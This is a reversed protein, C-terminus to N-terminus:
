GGAAWPPVGGPMTGADHEHLPEPAPATSKADGGGPPVAVKAVTWEGSRESLIFTHTDRDPHESSLRDRLQEAESRDM